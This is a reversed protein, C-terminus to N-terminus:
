ENPREENSYTISTPVVILETGGASRRAAKWALREFERLEISEYATKLSLLSERATGNRLLGAVGTLESNNM